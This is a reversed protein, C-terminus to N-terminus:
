WPTPHHPPHMPTQPHAAQLVFVDHEDYHLALASEIPGAPTHYVNLLTQTDFMEEFGNKLAALSPIRHSAVHLIVSLPPPQHMLQQARAPPTPDGPQGVTLAGGPVFNADNLLAMTRGYNNGPYVSKCLPLWEAIHTTSQRARSLLPHQLVHDLGAEGRNWLRPSTEFNVALFTQLDLPHMAHSVVDVSAAIQYLFFLCVAAGRSKRLSTVITM